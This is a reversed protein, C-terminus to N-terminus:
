PQWFLLRSSARRGPRFRLTADAAADLGYAVLIVADHQPYHREAM